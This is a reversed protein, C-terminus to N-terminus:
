TLSAFSLIMKLKGIAKPLATYISEGEEANGGPSEQLMEGYHSMVPVSERNEELASSPISEKEEKWHCSRYVLRGNKDETASAGFLRCVLSRGEYFSCHYERDPLYLPCCKSEPDGKELLTLIEEERGERLIAASAYVAEAPTLVPVYKECCHGCGPICSIAYKELFSTQTSDLDRYLSRLKEIAEGELTDSLISDLAEIKM